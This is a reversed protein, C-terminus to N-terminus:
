RHHGARHGQYARRHPYAPAARHNRPCDVVNAETRGLARRRPPACLRHLPPLFSFIGAPRATDPARARAALIMNERVTLGAFRGMPGPVYGIGVPAIDPTAWGGIERGEFMIKGRSPKWLGMITRLTTSKGAGNRGLLVTM